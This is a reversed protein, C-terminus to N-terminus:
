GRGHYGNGVQGSASVGMAMTKGAPYLQGMHYVAFGNVASCAHTVFSATTSCSLVTERAERVGAKFLLAQAARPANHDVLLVNADPYLQRLRFLLFCMLM